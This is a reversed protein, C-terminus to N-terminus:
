RLGFTFVLVVYVKKRFSMNMNWVAKVPLLVIIVDTATNFFGSINLLRPTDICSGPISPDFIKARPVCEWIKVISTATYFLIMLVILFVISIDFPSWRM